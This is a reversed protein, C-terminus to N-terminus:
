NETQSEGIITFSRGACGSHLQAVRSTQAGELAFLSHLVATSEDPSALVCSLSITAGDSRRARAELKSGGVRVCISLQVSWDDLPAFADSAGGGIIMMISRCASARLLLVPGSYVPATHRQAIEGTNRLETNRLQWSAVSLSAVQSSCSAHALQTMSVMPMLCPSLHQWQTAM